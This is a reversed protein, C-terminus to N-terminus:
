LRSEEDLISALGLLLHDTRKEISPADVFEQKSNFLFEGAGRAIRLIQLFAEEGSESESTAHVVQGDKFHMTSQVSDTTIHLTGTKQAASLMQIVDVLSLEALSGQLDSSSKRSLLSHIRFLIESDECPLTIYDDCGLQYCATTSNGSNSIILTRVNKLSTNLNKLRLFDEHEFREGCDVAVVLDARCDLLEETASLACPRTELEVGADILTSFVRKFESGGSDIILIRPM